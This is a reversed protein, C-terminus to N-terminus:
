KNLVDYTHWMYRIRANKLWSLGNDQKLEGSTSYHLYDSLRYITARYTAMLLPIRPPIAFSITVDNKTNRARAARPPVFSTNRLYNASSTRLAVRVYTVNPGIPREGRVILFNFFFFFSPVSTPPVFAGATIILLRGRRMDEPGSRRPYDILVRYRARADRAAM